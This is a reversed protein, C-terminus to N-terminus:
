AAHGGDASLLKEFAAMRSCLVAQLWDTYRKNQSYIERAAAIESAQKKREMAELARQQDADRRRLDFEDAASRLGSVSM